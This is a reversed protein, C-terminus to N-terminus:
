IYNRDDLVLGTLLTGIGGVLIAPISVGLGATLGSVGFFITGAIGAVALMIAACIFVWPVVGKGYKKELWNAM